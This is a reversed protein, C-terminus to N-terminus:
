EGGGVDSPSFADGLPIEPLDQDEPFPLGRPKVVDAPKEGPFAGTRYFEIMDEISADKFKRELIARVAGDARDRARAEVRKMDVNGDGYRGKTVLRSTESEASFIKARESDFVRQWEDKLKPSITYLPKGEEVRSFLDDAREIADEPLVRAADNASFKGFGPAWHNIWNERTLFFGDVMDARAGAAAEGGEKLVGKAASEMGLAKLGQLMAQERSSKGDLKVIAEKRDHLLLRAPEKGPVGKILVLFENPEMNDRQVLEFRDKFDGENIDVGAKEFADTLEVEIMNTTYKGDELVADLPGSMFGRDGFLVVPPHLDTFKRLAADTASAEMEQDTLSSGKLGRLTENESTILARVQAERVAGIRVNVGMLEKLGAELEKTAGLAAEAAKRDAKSTLPTGSSANGSRKAEQINLAAGYAAAAQAPGEGGGVQVMSRLFDKEGDTMWKLSLVATTKAGQIDLRGQGALPAPDLSVFTEAIAMFTEADPNTSRLQLLTWEQMSPPVSGLGLYTRTLYATKEKRDMNALKPAVAQKFHADFATALHPHQQLNPLSAIEGENFGQVLKMAVSRGIRRDRVAILKPVLDNKEFDPLGEADIILADLEALEPEVSFAPFAGGQDSLVGYDDDLLAAEGMESLLSSRREAAGQVDRGIVDIGLGDFDGSSLGIQFRLEGKAGGSLFSTKVGQWLRVQQAQVIRRLEPSEEKIRDFLAGTEAIVDEAADPGLSSLAELGKDAAEQVAQTNIALVNGALEATLDAGLLGDRQGELRARIEPNTVGSLSEDYAKELLKERLAGYGEENYDDSTTYDRLTENAGALAATLKAQSEATERVLTLNGTKRKFEAVGRAVAGGVDQALDATARAPASLAAASPLVAPAGAGVQSQPIRIPRVM